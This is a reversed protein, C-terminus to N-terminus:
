KPQHSPHEEEGEDKAGSLRTRPIRELANWKDLADLFCSPSLAEVEEHVPLQLLPPIDTVGKGNLEEILQVNLEKVTALTSIGVFPSCILTVPSKDEARFLEQATDDQHVLGQHPGMLQADHMERQIIRFKNELQQLWDDGLHKKLLEKTADSEILKDLRIRYEESYLFESLVFADKQYKTHFFMPAGGKTAKIEFVMVNSSLDLDNSFGSRLAWHADHYLQSLRASDNIIGSSEFVALDHTLSALDALAGLKSLTIKDHDDFHTKHWHRSKFTLNRLTKLVAFSIGTDHEKLKGLELIKRNLELNGIAKELFAVVREKEKGGLELGRGPNDPHMLKNLLFLADLDESSLGTGQIIEERTM